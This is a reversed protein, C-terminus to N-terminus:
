SIVTSFTLATGLGAYGQVGETTTVGSFEPPAGSNFDTSFVTVSDASAAPSVATLSLVLVGFLLTKFMRGTSKMALARQIFLGRWMLSRSISTRGSPITLHSIIENSHPLSNWFSQVIKM